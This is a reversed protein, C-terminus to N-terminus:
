HYASYIADIEDNTYKSLTLSDAHFLVVSLSDNKIHKSTFNAVTAIDDISPEEIRVIDDKSFSYGRWITDANCKFLTKDVAYFAGSQGVDEPTVDRLIGKFGEKGFQVCWSFLPLAIDLKLPYSVINKLYDKALLPDLISNHAGPKKLNGINYCMLLGKDVPPIGSSMFYKVQHLRITCSLLKGKFFVKQKLASLLSFYAERSTATWDCDIQIENGWLAKGAFTQSLLRDINEALLDIDQEEINKVVDQTIFVVPTIMFRSDIDQAFRVKAVPLAKRGEKSWVVDFCHVYLHRCDIEKLRSDIDDTKFVTKWYYMSRDVHTRRQNCGIALMILVVSFFGGLRNVM